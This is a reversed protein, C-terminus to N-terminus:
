DLHVSGDSGLTITEMTPHCLTNEIMHGPPLTPPTTSPGPLYPRQTWLAKGVQQFVIPHSDLPVSSTTTFYHYFGSTSSQKLIHLVDDDRRRWYLSDNLQYALFWKNRPVLLWRGLPSDLKM